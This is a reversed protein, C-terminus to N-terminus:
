QVPTIRIAPDKKDPRAAAKRFNRRFRIVRLHPDFTQLRQLINFSDDTSGDEIIVLEYSRGWAGLTQTLERHLEDLSEAENRVPIVVSVDPM